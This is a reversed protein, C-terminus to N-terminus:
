EARGGKTENQRGQAKNAGGGDPNLAGFSAGEMIQVNGRGIFDSAMTM